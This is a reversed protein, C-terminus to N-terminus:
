IRLAMWTGNSCGNLTGEMHDKDVFYGKWTKKCFCIISIDFNVTYGASTYTAINNLEDTVTGQTKDGSFTLTIEFDTENYNGTFIWTGRVDSQNTIDCGTSLITGTIISAAILVFHAKKM